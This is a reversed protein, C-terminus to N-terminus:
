LGVAHKADENWVSYTNSNLLPALEAQVEVM